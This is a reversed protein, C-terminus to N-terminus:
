LAAIILIVLVVGEGIVVKRNDKWMHEIEEKIMEM